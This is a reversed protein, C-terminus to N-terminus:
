FWEGREAMAVLHGLASHPIAHHRPARVSVSPEARTRYVSTIGTLKDAIAHATNLVLPALRELSAQGTGVLSIGAIPGDPGRVAAGVCSIDAFCEGREFAVGNRARVRNLEMHLVALDGIGTATRKRIVHELMSDIQEAPLWALLAKGGATCWAPARGGVLSPVDAAARGGFKDLYVVDTGDLVSLHVVLETSMALTHLLPFAAARLASYGTERGGLGLARDGLRYTKGHRVLWGLRVLRDLIRHTTSRPIRTRVAIEELTLHTRANGVVELILTMRDVVSPPLEDRETVGAGESLTSTM